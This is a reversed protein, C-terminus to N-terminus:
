SLDMGVIKSIGLLSCGYSAVLSEIKRRARTLISSFCAFEGNIEKKLSHETCVIEFLFGINEL